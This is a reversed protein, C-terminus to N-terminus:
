RQLVCDSLIKQAIIPIPKGNPAIVETYKVFGEERYKSNEPLAQIGFQFTSALFLTIPIM